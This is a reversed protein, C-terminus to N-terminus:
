TSERKGFLPRVFLYHIFFDLGGWRGVRTTALAFLAMMEVFEKNVFLSHGVAPHPVPFLGPWDPQALVISLLFLAGALSALRTFLGVLLLLGVATVGYSVMRDIRAIKSQATDAAAPVGGVRERQDRDLLADLDQRFQQYVHDLEGRWGKLQAQLETQKKWIRQQQFPPYSWTPSVLPQDNARRDAAPKEAAAKEHASPATTVGSPSRKARDLRDLESLYTNFDDQNEALIQETQIKRAAAAQEAAAQQEASPHYAESFRKLYDDLREVFQKRGEPGLAQRGDWDDVLSRYYDGLPGKAQGLFAASSFDPDELKAIGQYLFHWGITLRLLVLMLVTLLGFQFPRRTLPSRRAM